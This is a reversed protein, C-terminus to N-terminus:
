LNTIETQEESRLSVLYFCHLASLSTGDNWLESLKERKSTFYALWM